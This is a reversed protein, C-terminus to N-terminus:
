LGMEKLFRSPKHVEITGWSTKRSLSYSFFLNKRARTVAVYALRRAEEVQAAGDSKRNGPLIEDEFGVIFVTDWERGKAGHMTTVTVGEVADKTEGEDQGMALALALLDAGLPLRRIITAVRMRSESTIGELAMWQGVAGVDINPPFGLAHNMSAGIRRSVQQLEHAKAREVGKAILYFYALTDNEPNVLLEILAQALAWDAPLQVKEDEAVPIGVARLQDRFAIALDNNRSLVAIESCQEVSPSAFSDEKNELSTDANTFNIERIVASIESGENIFGGLVGIRGGPGKASITWKPIRELNQKILHNAVDCIMDHSRFNEELMIVEGDGRLKMLDPRGGRFAYISQDQDGVFFKNAMPLAHYIEWDVSASDQVEDVFLHTFGLTGLKTENWAQLMLLFETLITDFDVLGSERLEAYYSLIVRDEDTLRMGASSCIRTESASVESKWKLLKKLPTKCGLTKAKSEILDAVADEGILALREGYGMGAGYLKLMKLAFGHLTGCYGLGLIGHEDLRKELERAAANTFTLAVIGRVNTGSIVLRKIRKVTTATKGSGPGAVVLINQVDSNIAQRQAITPTM